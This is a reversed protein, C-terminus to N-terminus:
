HDREYREKWKFYEEHAEKIKEKCIKNWASVYEDRKEIDDPEMTDGFGIWEELAGDNDSVAIENPCWSYSFKPCELCNIRIELSGNCPYTNQTKDGDYIGEVLLHELRMEIRDGIKLVHLCERAM